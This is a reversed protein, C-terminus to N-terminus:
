EGTHTRLCKRMNLHCGVQPLSPVERWFLSWDHWRPSGQEEVEYGLSEYLRRAPENHQHVSLLLESFGSSRVAEESAGILARAIGRRRQDPRVYLGSLRPRAPALPSIYGDDGIRTAAVSCSGVSTGTEDVAHLTMAGGARCAGDVGERLEASGVSLPAAPLSTPAACIRVASLTHPAAAISLLVLSALSALAAM